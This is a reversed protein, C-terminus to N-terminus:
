PGSSFLTGEVTPPFINHNLVGSFDITGTGGRSVELVTDVKFTNDGNNFLAGGMIPGGIIGGNFTLSWRGSLIGTTSGPKPLSEHKVAVWFFGPTKVSGVTGSFNGAFVAAGCIVQPCFEVGDLEGNVAPRSAEASMVGLSLAAVFVFSFISRKMKVGGIRKFESQILRRGDMFPKREPKKARQDSPILKL